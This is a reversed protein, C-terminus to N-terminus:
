LHTGSVVGLDFVLNNYIHIYIHNTAVENYLVTRSYFSLLEILTSHTDLIPLLEVSYQGPSHTYETISCSFATTVEYNHALIQLYLETTFYKGVMPM